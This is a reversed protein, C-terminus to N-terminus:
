GRRGDDDGEFRADAEESSVVGNVWGSQSEELWSSTSTPSALFNDIRMSLQNALGVDEGGGRSEMGFTRRTGSRRRKIRAGRSSVMSSSSSGDGEVLGREGVLVLVCTLDAKWCDRDSVFSASCRAVRMKSLFAVKTEVATLRSGRVSFGKSLLM